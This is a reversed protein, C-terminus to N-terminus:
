HNANFTLVDELVNMIQERTVESADSNEQESSTQADVIFGAQHMYLDFSPATTKLEAVLVGPSTM